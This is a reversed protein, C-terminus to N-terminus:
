RVGYELLKDRFLTKYAPTYAAFGEGKFNYKENLRTVHIEEGHVIVFGNEDCLVTQINANNNAAESLSSYDKPFVKVVDLGYIDIEEDRFCLVTCLYKDPNQLYNTIGFKKNNSAATFTVGDTTPLLINEIKDWVRFMLKRM